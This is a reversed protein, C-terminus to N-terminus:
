ADVQKRLVSAVKNGTTTIQGAGDILGRHYLAKRVAGRMPTTDGGYLALLAKKQVPSMTEIISM